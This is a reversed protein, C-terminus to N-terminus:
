CMSIPQPLRERSIRDLTQFAETAGNKKKGDMEKLYDAAIARKARMAVEVIKANTATLTRAEEMTKAGKSNEELLMAIERAMFVKQGNRSAVLRSLIVSIAFGNKMKVAM